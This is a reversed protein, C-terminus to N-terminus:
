DGKSKDPDIQTELADLWDLIQKKQDKSLRSKPHALRYSSLPMTDGDIEEQAQELKRAARTASYRGFESLNLHEKGEEVHRGLWWAVPQISEYWPYRTNNSHCDYCAEQVAVRVAEPAPHLIFIDDSNLRSNENRPTHVLQIAVLAVTFVLLFIQFFKM